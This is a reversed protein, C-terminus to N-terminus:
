CRKKVQLIGRKKFRRYRTEYDDAIERRVEEREPYIEGLRKLM